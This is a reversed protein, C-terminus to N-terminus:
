MSRQVFSQQGSNNRRAAAASSFGPSPLYSRPRGASPVSTVEQARSIPVPLQQHSSYLLRSSGGRLPPQHPGGRRPSPPQYQHYKLGTGSQYRQPLHSPSSPSSLHGQFGNPNSGTPLHSNSKRRVQHPSPSRSAAPSNQASRQQYLPRRNGQQPQSQQQTPRRLRANIPSSIGRIPTQHHHDRPSTRPSPSRSKERRPSVVLHSQM